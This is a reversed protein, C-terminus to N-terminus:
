ATGPTLLTELAAKTVTYSANWFVYRSYIESEGEATAFEYTPLGYNEQARHSGAIKHLGSELGLIVFKGETKPGKLEIIVVIDRMNDLNALSLADRAYPQISFHNTFLDPLNDASILDAGGDGEKKVMTVKWARKDLENAIATILNLDTGDVTATFDGRNLIYAERELGGAPRNACSNTIAKTIGTLCGM